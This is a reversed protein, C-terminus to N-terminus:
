GPGAEGPRRANEGSKLAALPLYVIGNAKTTTSDGTPWRALHVPRKRM